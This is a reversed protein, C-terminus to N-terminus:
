LRRVSRHPIRRALAARRPGAAYGGVRISMSFGKGEDAGGIPRHFYLHADLAALLVDAVDFPGLPREELLGEFEAGYRERWSAPYLRMLLRSM